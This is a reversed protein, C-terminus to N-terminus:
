YVKNIRIYKFYSWKLVYDILRKVYKQWILDEIDLNKEIWVLGMGLAWYGCTDLLKRTPCRLEIPHLLFLFAQTIYLHSGAKEQPGVAWPGPREKVNHTHSARPTVLGAGPRPWSPRSIVVNELAHTQVSGAPGDHGSERWFNSGLGFELIVEKVGPLLQTARVGMVAEASGGRQTKEPTLTSYLASSQFDFVRLNEARVSALETVQSFWRAKKAETEKNAFRAHSHQGRSGRECNRQHPSWARPKLPGPAPHPLHYHQGARVHTVTARSKGRQGWSLWLSM